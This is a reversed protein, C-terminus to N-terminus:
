MMCSDTTYLFMLCTCNLYQWLRRLMLCMNLLGLMLCRNSSHLLQYTYPTTGGSVTATLTISQPIDLTQSTPSISVTPPTYSEQVSGFTVSPMVGSPPYARTRLWQMNVTGSGVDYFLGIVLYYNAITASTNSTSLTSGYALSGSQSGTASWVFSWVDTPFSAVAESALGSGGYLLYQTGGQWGWGYTGSSEGVNNTLSEYIRFGTGSSQSPIYADVVQPEIITSTTQILTYDTTASQSFSVSNNVTITGGSIDTSLSTPLTTGAFNWYNPFVSAGDDYEAYTSSLQPAEGNTSNNLMNTTSNSLGMDVTENTSAAIGASINLWITLNGSSNSEIWSPIISNNSPYYFEMNSFSGDSAYIINSMTSLNATIMQQFPAPTASTQTNNIYVPYYQVISTPHASAVGIM